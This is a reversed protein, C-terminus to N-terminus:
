SHGVPTAEIVLDDFQMVGDLIWFL